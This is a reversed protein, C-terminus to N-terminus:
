IRLGYKAEKECWCKCFSNEDTFDLWETYRDLLVRMENIDIWKFKRQKGSFGCVSCVLRDM